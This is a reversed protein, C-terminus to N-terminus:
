GALSLLKLWRGQITAIGKLEDLIIPPKNGLSQHPRLFNYYAVFLTTIAQASPITNFGYRNRTHFRYTRNFREILQKFRRYFASEEDTNKLGIVTRRILKRKELPLPKGDTDVNVANVAADYSPNGDGILELAPADEPRKDLTQNVVALASKESRNDTVNWGFVAKSTVGIIFWAYHWVGRIKIYTEDAAVRDENLGSTFRNAVAWANPAAKDIWNLVTQHSISIGHVERLIRATMRASLGYSVCYALVLGLTNLSKRITLLSGEPPTPRIEAPDYHYERWQYRRKFQSGMGTAALEKESDNLAVSKSVYVPCQDNPCKYYTKEKERKWRYLAWGCHPCWYKAQSQRRARLIPSLGQCIKCRVQSCKRGDNVSLYESPAGCNECSCDAPPVHCGKRRVVPRLERGTDRHYRSLLECWDEQPERPSPEPPAVLPPRDDVSFKRYNPHNQRFEKKLVIDDRKGELVDLFIAVAEELEKLTVMSCFWTVLSLNSM